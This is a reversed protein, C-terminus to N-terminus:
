KALEVDVEEDDVVKDDASDEDDAISLNQSATKQSDLTKPNFTSDDDYALKGSLIDAEIRKTQCYKCFHLAACFLLWGWFLCIQAVTRISSYGFPQILVMPLRSDDWFHNQVQWAIKSEGFQEEFEHDCGVLLGSALFTVVLTTFICLYFKNTMRRNATYIGFGALCGVFIGVVASLPISGLHQRTLFSPLLFAGCEATERWINWAVNFRITNM